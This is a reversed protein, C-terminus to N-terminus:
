QIWCLDVQGLVAEAPNPDLSEVTRYFRELTETLQFARHPSYIISSSSLSRLLNTAANGPRAGLLGEVTL